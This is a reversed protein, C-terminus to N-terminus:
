SESLKVVSPPPAVVVAGGRTPDLTLMEHLRKYLPSVHQGQKKFIFQHTLVM